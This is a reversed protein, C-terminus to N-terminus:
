SWRLLFLLLDTEKDFTLKIKGNKERECNAKPVTEKVFSSFGIFNTRECIYTNWLNLCANDEMTLRYEIM